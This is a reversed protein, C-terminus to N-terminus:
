RFEPIVKRGVLGLPDGCLERKPHVGSVNYCQSTRVNGDGVRAERRDSAVIVEKIAVTYTVGGRREIDQSWASGLFCM